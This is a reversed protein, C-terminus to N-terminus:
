PLPAHIPRDGSLKREGELGDIKAYAIHNFSCASMVATIHANLECVSPLVGSAAGVSSKQCNRVSDARARSPSHSSPVGLIRRDAIPEPGPVGIPPSGGSLM